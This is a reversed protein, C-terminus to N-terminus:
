SQSIVHVNADDATGTVDSRVGDFEQDFATVADGAHIIKGHPVASGHVCFGGKIGSIKGISETQDVNKLLVLDFRDHMEGGGGLNTLADGVGTLIITIIDGGGDAHEIGHVRALDFLEDEGRGAGGVANGFFHGHGFVEGLVRDIGVAVGLEHDFVNKEVDRLGFVEGEGCRAVEVNGAAGGVAGDAFVVAGFGVEDGDQELDGQTFFGVDVEEAGVVGGLVAGADAVVDVDLVEDFGM